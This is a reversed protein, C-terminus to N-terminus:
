GRPNGHKLSSIGPHLRDRQSVILADEEMIPWNIGISQDFIDIGFETKPDYVATCKYTVHAGEPSIAQLGHLFGPPIWFNAKSEADLIEAHWQGFTPSDVRADVAVDFIQGSVVSVLKGMGPQSHLGRIVGYKSYSHNDQKFVEHFNLEKAWEECNYSECFFGREDPFIKPRIIKLDPILKVTEIEAQVRKVVRPATHM